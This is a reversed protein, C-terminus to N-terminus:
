IKSKERLKCGAFSVAVMLIFSAAYAPFVTHSWRTLSFGFSLMPLYFFQSWRGIINMWYAHLVLEQVALLMLDLAAILNLSIVVKKTSQRKGKLFYAFCGWVVLFLVSILSYPLILSIGTLMCWNQMVGVALPLAGLLICVGIM